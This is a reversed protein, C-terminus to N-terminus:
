ISTRGTDFALGVYVALFNAPYRSMFVINELTRVLCVLNWIDIPYGWPIRLLIEPARYYDPQAMKYVPDKGPWANGFDCLKAVGWLSLRGFVRSQYIPMGNVSNRPSPDEFEASEFEKFGDDDTVLQM